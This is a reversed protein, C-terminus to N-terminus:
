NDNKVKRVLAALWNITDSALQSVQTLTPIVPKDEFVNGKGFKLQVTTKFDNNM